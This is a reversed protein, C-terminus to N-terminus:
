SGPSDAVAAEARAAEAALEAKSKRGRKKPKAEAPKEEPKEEPAVEAATTAVPMDSFLSPAEVPKRNNKVDFNEGEKGNVSYM